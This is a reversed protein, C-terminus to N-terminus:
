EEQTMKEFDVRYQDKFQEGVNNSEENWVDMLPRLEQMKQTAAELNESQLDSKAQAITDQIEQKFQETTYSEYKQRDFNTNKNENLQQFKGRSDIWMHMNAWHWPCDDCMELRIKAQFKEGDVFDIEQLIVNQTDRKNESGFLKNMNAECTQSNKYPNNNFAQEINVSEEAMRDLNDSTLNASYEQALSKVKEIESDLDVEQSESKFNIDM